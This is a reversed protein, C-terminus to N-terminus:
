DSTPPAWEGIPSEKIVPYSAEMDAMYAELELAVEPTFRDSRGLLLKPGGSRVSERQWYISNYFVPDRLARVLQARLLFVKDGEPDADDWPRPQSAVSVWPKIMLPPRPGAGGSREVLPISLVGHTKVHELEAELRVIQQKRLQSYDQCSMEMFKSYQPHDDFLFDSEYYDLEDKRPDRLLTKEPFLAFAQEGFQELQRSFHALTPGEMDMPVTLSRHRGIAEVDWGREKAYNSRRNPYDGFYAVEASQKRLGARRLVKRFSADTTPKLSELYSWTAKNESFHGYIGVCRFVYGLPPFLHIVSWDLEHLRMVLLAPSEGRVSRSLAEWTKGVFFRPDIVKNVEWVM